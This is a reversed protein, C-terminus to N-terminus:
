RSVVSSPGTASRRRRPTRDRHDLALTALCGLQRRREVPDQFQVAVLEGGGYRRDGRRRTVDRGRRDTLSM